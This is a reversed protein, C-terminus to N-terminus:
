LDGFTFKDLVAYDVRLAASKRSSLVASVQRSRPLMRLNVMSPGGSTEPRLIVEQGSACMGDLLVLERLAKCYVVGALGTARGGVFSTRTLFVVGHRGLLTRDARM